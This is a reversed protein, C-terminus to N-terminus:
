KPLLPDTETTGRNESSKRETMEVDGGSNTASNGSEAGGSNTASNGSEVGSNTTSNGSEVNSNTASNGSEMGSNTTSNKKSLTKNTFYAGLISFTASGFSLTVTALNSANNNTTSALTLLFVVVLLVISILVLFYVFGRTKDTEDSKKTKDTEDSKKLTHIERQVTIITVLMVASSLLSVYFVLVSITEIPTILLMLFTPLVNLGVM